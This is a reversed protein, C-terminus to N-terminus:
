GVVGAAARMAAVYFGASGTEFANVTGADPLHLVRQRDSSDLSTGDGLDHGCRRLGKPPGVILLSGGPGLNRRTAEARSTRGHSFPIGVSPVELDVTTHAFEGTSPDVPDTGGKVGDRVRPNNVVERDGGGQLNPFRPAPTPTTLTPVLAIGLSTAAPLLILHARAVAANRANNSAILASQVVTAALPVVFPAIFPPVATLNTESALRKGEELGPSQVYCQKM